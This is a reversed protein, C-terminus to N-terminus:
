SFVHFHASKQSSPAFGGPEPRKWVGFKVGFHAEFKSKFWTKIPNSADRAKSAGL